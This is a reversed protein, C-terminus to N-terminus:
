GEFLKSNYTAQEFTPQNGPLDAVSLPRSGCIRGVGMPQLRGSARM